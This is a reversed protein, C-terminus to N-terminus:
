KESTVILVKLLLRSSFIEDPNVGSDLLKKIQFIIMKEMNPRNNRLYKVPEGSRCTNM